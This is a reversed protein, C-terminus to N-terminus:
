SGVAVDPPLLHPIGSRTEQQLLLSRMDERWAPDVGRGRVIAEMLLAMDAATTPLDRTNVSTHQLGLAALTNDVTAPGLARLLTVASTNDSRTVMAHVAARVSILRQRSNRPTPTMKMGTPSIVSAMWSATSRNVGTSFMRSTASETGAFIATASASPAVWNPM